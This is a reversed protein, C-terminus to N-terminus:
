NLYVNEIIFNKNVKLYWKHMTKHYQIDKFIVHHINVTM